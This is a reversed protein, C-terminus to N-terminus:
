DVERSEGGPEIATGTLQQFVDDLTAQDSIRAKLEAPTGVAKLHGTQLIAVRDCLEDAEEMYHTTLFIASGSDRRLKRVHDWVAWRGIPDLGVTPEDLFVVAPKHLMSQAIELRRVMGGSYTSVLRDRYETLSMMELAEDIMKARAASPILYLRASLLMNEYGTLDRDASPRQPVYGIRGRVFGPKSEVDFGDVQAHGSSPPLMTTLIKILTSKGAGNPGILGFIEGANVTLNVKDLAFVDKYRRTLESTSLVQHSQQSM